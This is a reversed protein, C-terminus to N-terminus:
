TAAFGDVYGASSSQSPARPSGWTSAASRLRRQAQRHSNTTADLDRRWWWWIEVAGGAATRITPEIPTASWSRSYLPPTRM